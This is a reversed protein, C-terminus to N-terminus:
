KPVPLVGNKGWTEMHIYVKHLESPQVAKILKTTKLRKVVYLVLGRHLLPEEIQM